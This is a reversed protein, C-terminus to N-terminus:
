KGVNTYLSKVDLSIIRHNKPIKENKIKRIFEFSNKVYSKRKELFESLTKYLFQALFYTPSGIVSTVPRFSCNQKHIKALGYAWFSFLNQKLKFFDM